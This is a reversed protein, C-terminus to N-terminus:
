VICVAPVRVGYETKEGLPGTFVDETWVLRAGPSRHGRLATIAIAGNLEVYEHDASAILVPSDDPLKQILERLQGVNM